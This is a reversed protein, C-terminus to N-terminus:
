RRGHALWAAWATLVVGGGLMVGGAAIDGHMVSSLAFLACVFGGWASAGWNPQRRM